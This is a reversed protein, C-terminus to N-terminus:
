RQGGSHSTTGFSAADPVDDSGLLHRVRDYRGVDSAHHSDTSAVLTAGAARLAALSRREPCGWKENVEVHTDTEAATSAWLELQEDTLQNESLGVKPLISFCHALQNGPNVRMATVFADVFTALVDADAWGSARRELVATPGLPGEETPFQHDAILIRDIGAPLVPADLTGRTDLLKAEVGTFVTLGEPVSLEGVATIFESVWPTSVRVHDVLRVAFLGASAAADVNEQLTSRADDSFTSHVHFDGLLLETPSQGFAFGSM